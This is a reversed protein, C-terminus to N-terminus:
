LNTLVDTCRTKIFDNSKSKKENPLLKNTQYYKKINDRESDILTTITLVEYPLIDRNFSLTKNNNVDSINLTNKQLLLQTNNFENPEFVNFIVYMNDLSKQIINFIQDNIIVDKVSYTKDGTNRLNITVSTSSIYLEINLTGSPWLDLITIKVDNGYKKEILFEKIFLIDKWMKSLNVSDENSNNKNYPLVIEGGEGLFNKHEIAGCEEAACSAFITGPRMSLFSKNSFADFANAFPYAKEGMILKANQQPEIAAASDPSENYVFYPVGKEQLFETYNNFKQYGENLNIKEEAIQPYPMIQVIDLPAALWALESYVDGKAMIEGIATFNSFFSKFINIDVAIQKMENFRNLSMHLADYRIGALNVDNQFLQFYNDLKSLLMIAHIYPNNMKIQIFTLWKDKEGLVPSAIESLTSPSSESDPNMLDKHMFLQYARIQNNNTKNILISTLINFPSKEDLLKFGLIDFFENLINKFRPSNSLEYGFSSVKDVHNDLIIKVGLNNLYTIMNRASENGGLTISTREAKTEYPYIVGKHQYVSKSVVYDNGNLNIIKAQKLDPSMKLESFEQIPLMWIANAQTRDIIQKIFALNKPDDLKPTILFTDENNETKVKIPGAKFVDDSNYEEDGYEYINDWLARDISPYKTALAINTTPSSLDNYPNIILIRDKSLEKSNISVGLNFINKHHYLEDFYLPLLSDKDKAKNKFYISGFQENNIKIAVQYKAGNEYTKIKDLEIENFLNSQLDENEDISNSTMAKLVNIFRNLNERIEKNTVKAEYMKEIANHANKIGTDFNHGMVLKGPLNKGIIDVEFLYLENNDKNEIRLFNAGRSEINGPSYEVRKGDSNIISIKNIEQAHSVAHFIIFIFLLKLTKNM